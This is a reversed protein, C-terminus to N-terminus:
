WFHVTDCFWKVMDRRPREIRVDLGGTPAGCGANACVSFMDPRGVVESIMCIDAKALPVNADLAGGGGMGMSVDVEASETAATAM